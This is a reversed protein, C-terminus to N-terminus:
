ERLWRHNRRDLESEPRRGAAERNKRYDDVFERDRRKQEEDRDRWGAQRGRRDVLALIVAIAIGLATRPGVYFWGLAVLAGGAAIWAWWPVAYELWHM